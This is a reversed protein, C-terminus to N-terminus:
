ESVAGEVRERGQETIFYYTRRRGSDGSIETLNGDRLESTDVRFLDGDEVLESVINQITRYSFTIRYQRIMGAYIALPPLPMDHEAIFELVRERRDEPPVSDTECVQGKDDGSQDSSRCNACYLTKSGM